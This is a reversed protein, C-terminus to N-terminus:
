CLYSGLDLRSAAGDPLWSRASCWDMGGAGPEPGPVQYPVWVEQGQQGTLNLQDWLTLEAKDPLHPGRRPIVM